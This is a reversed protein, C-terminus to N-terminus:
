AASLYAGAAQGWRCSGPPIARRWENISGLLRKVDTLRRLMWVDHRGLRMVAWSCAGKATEPNADPLHMHLRRRGGRRDANSDVVPLTSNHPEYRQPVAHRWACPGPYRHRVALHARYHIDYAHPGNVSFSHAERDIGLRKPPEETYNISTTRVCSAPM